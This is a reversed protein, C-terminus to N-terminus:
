GKMMLYLTRGSDKVADRRRIAFFRGFEREFRESTYDEFVDERNALLRAVMPDTKPVFEIVLSRCLRAFFSAIHGLPVNNSIALHHVLALAMITDVPGRDILGLREANAWGISPSPNAIDLVLPLIGARGGSSVLDRYNAEVCAPDIDFAVTMAGARSALRSFFGNNAGLDWVREPSLAELYGAVIREKHELASASYSCDRYYDAWQTGEPKWRLKRIASELSEILGNLANRSMSARKDIIRDSCRKQSAAHMHIHLMLSSFRTRAPLLSSALDLPVGDIFGAMLRGLRIDTHSMLALPALFHQCFQRYAVWPRGEHYDEFSLTDIFVPKCGIFQVNYASADKLTMGFKIARKQVALTTIAADKLQSFCWEYPYSIFPAEEPRIIRAEEEHVGLPRQGSADSLFGGKSQFTTKEDLSSSTKPARGARGRGGCAPGVAGGLRPVRLARLEHVPRISRRLM